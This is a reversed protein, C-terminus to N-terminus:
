EGFLLEIRLLIRSSIQSVFGLTWVWMVASTVVGKGSRGNSPMKVMVVSSEGMVDGEISSLRGESVSVRRERSSSFVM